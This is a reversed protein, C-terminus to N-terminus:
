SGRRHALTSPPCTFATDVAPPAAPANGASIVPDNQNVRPVSVNTCPWLDAFVTASLGDGTGTLAERIPVTQLSAGQAPVPVNAEVTYVYSGADYVLDIRSGASWARFATTPPSTLVM